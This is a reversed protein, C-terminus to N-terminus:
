GNWVMVTKGREKYIDTEFARVMDPIGRVEIVAGVMKELYEPVQPSSRYLDLLGEFDKRGSRSTGILRLGKELVMRTNVPVSEESVGLLAITGEPRIHDIIQSIVTGSAAGGVCEFGHDIQLDEPIASVLCVDDVFSFDNMKSESVGFVMIRSEPMRARLLLATFYAMNGDGWVGITERRGHATMDFRSVAHFCVSVMETFAGTLDGLEEPLALCRDARTEIYEQMFGDMTSGRFLSDRLYNEAAYPDEGSPVNPIMVVRTGPAFTGSGDKLVTGIGEHILAMPLKQALIKAPRKGQYYRQDANCISLFAPRVIMSDGGAELERFAAEFQRPRTLQWVTNLM